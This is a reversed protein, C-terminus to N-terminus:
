DGKRIFHATLQLRNNNSSPPIPNMRVDFISSNFDGLFVNFDFEGPSDGRVFQSGLSGCFYDSISLGNPLEIGNIFNILETGGGMDIIDFTSDVFLYFDSTDDSLYIYPTLQVNRITNETFNLSVSVNKTYKKKPATVLESFNLNILSAHHFEEMTESSTLFSVLGELRKVVGKQTYCSVRISEFENLGGFDAHFCDITVNDETKLLFGGISYNVGINNKDYFTLTGDIQYTGDSLMNIENVMDIPIVIAREFVNKRAKLKEIEENSNEILLNINSINVDQRENHSEITTLRSDQESNLVDISDLRRDQESNHQEIDELRTDQQENHSEIVTLRSDQESNKSDIYNKDVIEFEWKNVPSNKDDDRGSLVIKDPKKSQNDSEFFLKYNDTSFNDQWIDIKM